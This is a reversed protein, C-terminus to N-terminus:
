SRTRGTDARRSSEVSCALIRVQLIVTECDLFVVVNRCSRAVEDLM